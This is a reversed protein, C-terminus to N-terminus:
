IAVIGGRRDIQKQESWGPHCPYLRQQEKWPTPDSGHPSCRWSLAAPWGHTANGCISYLRHAIREGNAAWWLHRATVPQGRLASSLQRSTAEVSPQHDLQLHASDYPAVRGPHLLNLRRARQCPQGLPHGACQAERTYLWVHNFDTRHKRRWSELISWEHEDLPLEVEALTNRFHTQIGQWRNNRM